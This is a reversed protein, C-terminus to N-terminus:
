FENKDKAGTGGSAAGGSSSGPSKARRKKIILAAVVVGITIGVWGAVTFDAFFEM